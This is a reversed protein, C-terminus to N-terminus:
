RVENEASPITPLMSTNEVTTGNAARPSQAKSSGNFNEATKVEEVVNMGAKAPKPPNM